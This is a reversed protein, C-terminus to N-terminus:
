SAIVLVAAQKANCQLEEAGELRNILDKPLQKSGVRAGV